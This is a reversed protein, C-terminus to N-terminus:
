DISVSKLFRGCSFLQYLIFISFIFNTIVIIVTMGQFEEPRQGDFVMSMLGLFLFINVIAQLIITIGILIVSEGANHISKFKKEYVIEQNTM